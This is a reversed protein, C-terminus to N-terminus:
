QRSHRRREVRDDRDVPILAHRADSPGSAFGTRTVIMRVLGVIILAPIIWMTMMGSWGWEMGHNMWYM